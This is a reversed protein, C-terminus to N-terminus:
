HCESSGTPAFYGPAAEDCKDCQTQGELGQSYGEECEECHTAAISDTGVFMHAEIDGTEPEKGYTGPHCMKKCATAHGADNCVGEDNELSFYGTQCIACHEALTYKGGQEGQGPVGVTGM